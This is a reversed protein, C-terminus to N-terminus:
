ALLRESNIERFRTFHMACSQLRSNHHLDAEIMTKVGRQDLRVLYEGFTRNTINQKYAGTVAMTPAFPHFLLPPKVSPYGSAPFQEILAYVDDIECTPKSARESSSVTHCFCLEPIGLHVIIGESNQSILFSSKFKM